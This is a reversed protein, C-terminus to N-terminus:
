GVTLSSCRVTAPSTFAPFSPLAPISDVLVDMTQGVALVGTGMFSKATIATNVSSLTASRDGLGAAHLLTALSLCDSKVIDLDAGGVAVSVLRLGLWKFAQSRLWCANFSVSTATVRGVDRQEALYQKLLTHGPGNAVVVTIYCPRNRDDKAAPQDDGDIVRRELQRPRRLIGASLVTKAGVLGALGVQRDITIKKATRDWPNGSPAPGVTLTPVRDRAAAFLAPADLALALVPGRVVVTERDLIEGM